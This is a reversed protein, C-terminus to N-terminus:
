IFAGCIQLMEIMVIDGLHMKPSEGIMAAPGRFWLDDLVTEDGHLHPVSADFAILSGEGVRRFSDSPNPLIAALFQRTFYFWRLIM